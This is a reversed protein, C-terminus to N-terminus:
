GQPQVPQLTAKLTIEAGDREIGLEVVDNAEHKGLFEMMDYIDKVPQGNWRVLRDNAKVGALAASSNDSVGGVLVGKKADDYDGPQIGLRVKAATRPGGSGSGASEKFTLKQPRVALDMTIQEVMNVIRVGGACEVQSSIDTPQHYQPHTGTFFHIVPVGSRYFTAHDSPGQGGPSQAADFGASKIAPALVQDWEEATGVGSLQIKNDELRGIMDMNLMACMQSSGLATNGVFHKSGLLGMEEAAFALFLISRANATEPMAAYTKSLREALMLLGATGSANDDAGPHLKGVNAPSAGALYGYGVHDYHAGIVIYEGALNGKGPLVGGVNHTALRQREIDVKLTVKVDDNSLPMVGKWSGDALERLQLLSRQESDAAKILRSAADATLMVVPKDVQGFRTGRPSELRNARPDDAGPPNVVIVGEAGKAIAAKVKEVLGSRQSWVGSTSNAWLSRGRSDMPEFRFLMVIKGTLDDEEAFSAYGEPGKPISYGAYVLQGTAEAKASMGLPNYDTGLEFAGAQTTGKFSVEASNVIMSGPVTFHQEYSVAPAIDPIAGVPTTSAPPPPIDSGHPNDPPADSPAPTAAADPFAPRLGAKEFYFRIYNSAYEIGKTDASRGEFFPDALTTVHQCFIGTDDTAPVTATKPATDGVPVGAHPNAPAAEQAVPASSPTGSNAPRTNVSSSSCAGAFLVALAPLLPVSLRCLASHTM